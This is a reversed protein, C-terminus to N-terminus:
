IANPDNRTGRFTVDFMWEVNFKLEQQASTTGASHISLLLSPKFVIARDDDWDNMALESTPLYQSKEAMTSAYVSRMVGFNAGQTLPRTQASGYSSVIAYTLTNSSNSKGNRDWASVFVPNNTASYISSSAALLTIKVRIGNLKIQDYMQAFNNYFGSNQLAKWGNFYTSGETANTNVTITQENSWKLIQRCSDNQQNAARFEGYSRRKASRGYAYYRRGYRRYSRTSTRRSYAMQNDTFNAIRQANARAINRSRPDSM